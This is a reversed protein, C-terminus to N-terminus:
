IECINSGKNAKCWREIASKLKTNPIEGDTQLDLELNKAVARAVVRHTDQRYSKSWHYKLSDLFSDEFEKSAIPDNWVDPVTAWDIGSVIRRFYEKNELKSLMLEYWRDWAPELTKDEYAEWVAHPNAEKIADNLSSSFAAFRESVLSKSDTLFKFIASYYPKREEYRSNIVESIADDHVFPSWFGYCTEICHRKWSEKSSRQEPFTHGLGGVGVSEAVLSIVSLSDVLRASLLPHIVSKLEVIEKPLNLPFRFPDQEKTEYYIWGSLLLQRLNKPSFTEELDVTAKKAIESLQALYVNEVWSALSALQSKSDIDSVGNVIIEENRTLAAQTANMSGLILRQQKNGKVHFCKSHFLSGSNILYLGSDETFEKRRLKKNFKEIEARRTPNTTFGSSCYDTYIWLRPSTRDDRRGDLHKVIADITDMDIYASIVFISRIAGDIDLLEPINRPATKLLSFSQLEM